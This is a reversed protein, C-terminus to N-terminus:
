ICQWSSLIILIDLFLIVPENNKKIEDLIEQGEIDITQSLKSERFDKIFVYEALIKGYNNWMDKVINKKDLNDLNPFAIDLNSNILKNSRFLPGILSIIISSIKLSYKYGILKFILFLFIIFIYQIFYIINKM